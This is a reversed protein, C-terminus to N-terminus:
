QVQRLAELIVPAHANKTRTSMGHLQMSVLHEQTTPRQEAILTIHKRGLFPKGALVRMAQDLAKAAIARHCAEEQLLM